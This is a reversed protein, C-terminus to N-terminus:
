ECLQLKVMVRRGRRDVFSELQDKCNLGPKSLERAAAVGLLAAVVAGSWVLRRQAQNV